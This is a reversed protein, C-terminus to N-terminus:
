RRIEAGKIPRLMTALILAVTTVGACVLFTMRYDAYVDFIHGAMLPGVAGGANFGLTLVGYILGHSRLGFLMAIFPSESTGGGGYAFGFVAAFLYLM